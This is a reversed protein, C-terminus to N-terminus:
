WSNQHHGRYREATADFAESISLQGTEQGKDRHALVGATGQFSRICCRGSVGILIAAKGVVGTHRVQEAIKGGLANSADLYKKVTSNIFADFEEVSEPIPEAKPKPPEVIAPPAPNPTLTTTSASPGPTGNISPPSISSSAMDELRSTAAELRRSLTTLVTQPHEPTNNDAM